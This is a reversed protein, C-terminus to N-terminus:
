EEALVAALQEDSPTIGHGAGAIEHIPGGGVSVIDEALLRNGDLDVYSFADTGAVLHASTHIGVATETMCGIMLGLNAAQAIEVIAAAGLPGSKGLKVNIIDAAEERVVRMADEPTFVAEDAAIPIDVRRRATALGSIDAAAVPQEILALEIDRDAMARAFRATEKPTWGQNADVKLEANPAVEAITAVREIDAALDKGTKIKLEEYGAEIAAQTRRRADAPEVIPITMDTRVSRPSGGFLAALPLENAKTYADLVATEIAFIASAMGPFTSHLTESIQRYNAIPKGVILDQAARATEYAADVTEGTVPPVPSGEGYGHIGTDTEVVAMINNAVEQRGLSIEFPEELPLALKYVDLREITSM